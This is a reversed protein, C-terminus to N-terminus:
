VMNEQKTAQQQLLVEKQGSKAVPLPLTVRFLSGEGLESEAEIDGGLADVIRRTIALGLGTGENAEEGQHHQQFPDFSTARQDVTLGVGTDFVSIGGAASSFVRHNMDVALIDDYRTIAWYPGFQSEDCYHVPDTARLERFLEHYTYQEYLTPDAVDM